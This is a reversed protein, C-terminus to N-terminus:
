ITYMGHPPGPPPIKPRTLASKDVHKLQPIEGAPPLVLKAGALHINRNVSEGSPSRKHGFTTLVPIMNGGGGSGGNPDQSVVQTKDYRDYFSHMAGHSGSIRPSSEVSRLHPLTGYVVDMSQNKHNLNRLDSTDFNQSHRPPHPLTGYMSNTTTTNVTSTVGPPPAPATRKKLSNM